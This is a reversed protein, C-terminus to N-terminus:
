CIDILTDIKGNKDKLKEIPSAIPFSICLNPFINDRKYVVGVLIPSLTVLCCAFDHSSFAFTSSAM